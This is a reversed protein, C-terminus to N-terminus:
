MRRTRSHALELPYPGEAWQNIVPLDEWILCKPDMRSRDTNPRCAVEQGRKLKALAQVGQAQLGASHVRAGRLHPERCWLREDALAGSFAVYLWRGSGLVVILVACVVRFRVSARWCSPVTYQPHSAHVRDAPRGLMSSRSTTM